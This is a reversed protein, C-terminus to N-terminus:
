KEHITFDISCEEERNKEKKDAKQSYSRSKRHPIKKPNSSKERWEIAPYTSV